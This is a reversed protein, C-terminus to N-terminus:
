EAKLTVAADVRAARLGPLVSASAATAAILALTAILAIPDAPSIGPIFGRIAVAGMLAATLGITLGVAVPVLTGRMVVRIIDATTAGIAKRIGIERTRQAVTFSVLGYIGMMTLLGGLAGFASTAAAGVQAPLRAAGVAEGLPAIQAFIQPDMSAIERRIADAIAAPQNTRVLVNVERMAHQAFPTYVTPEVTEGLTWYKSDRVIGVVERDDLRKGLAEGNWSQRALTDNVIVVPPSGARDDATFDRGALLPIRLTKFWGPTLRNAMVKRRPADPRDPRVYYEERGTLTLPVVTSFGFTEVGPLQRIRAELQTVFQNVSRGSRELDSLDINATIVGSPDFGPDVRNAAALSRVFLSGWLLLLCSFAVQGAVLWQRLRQRGPLPDDDKLSAFLELRTSRRAPALGCLVATFVSTTVTYLLVTRDMGLDFEIPIPLQALARNIFAGLMLALMAGAAGGAFAIVLSETLLQRILRARSAGLALRVGIERRRAAGRGLLLGAINACGVLLVLGGVITLLGVFAFLPALTGAMGRFGGIGDVRFVEVNAFSKELTPHEAAIQAAIARMEARASEESADNGLRAIVEFAPENRDRLMAGALTPDIPAWFESVFGPARAGRFGPPMVGVIEVPRGNLAITRGIINPDSAFRIRWAREALVILDARTDSPLLTRGLMAPVGLLSLYNNTVIEGFLRQTGSADTLIRRSSAHAAVGGFATARRQIDDYNLWSTQSQGTYIRVIQHPARVALPKVALANVVGFVATNGGIAVAITLVAAAAFGPSRRLLRLAFGADQRLEGALRSPQKSM